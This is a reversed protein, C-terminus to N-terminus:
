RFYAGYMNWIKRILDLKTSIDFQKNNLENLDNIWDDKLDIPILYSSFVFLNIIEILLEGEYFEQHRNNSVGNMSRKNQEDEQQPKKEQLQLLILLNEINNLCKLCVINLQKGNIIISGAGSGNSKGSNALIRYMQYLILISPSISVMAFLLQQSKLLKDIGNIAMAGDVKGKQIQILILRLLSGTILYKIPSKIENEYTSMIIKLDGNKVDNTIQSETVDIHNDQAFQYIMSNLSDFESNLSDKSTISLQSDSSTNRLIDLMDYVPKIVWNKFFGVVPEIGNYNIWYIIEQRNAYVKKTQSPGYFIILAIIIWYRTLFGPSSTIDYSKKDFKVVHEMAQLIINKKKQYAAANLNQSILQDQTSDLQLIVSLAELYDKPNTKILKDINGINIAIEDDIKRLKLKAEKVVLNIPFKIVSKISHLYWKISLIRQKHKHKTRTRDNSLLIFSISPPSQQRISTILGNFALKCVNKIVLLYRSIINDEEKGGSQSSLQYLGNGNNNNNNNDSHFLIRKTKIFIDCGFNYLKIPSTQMFYILKNITSSNNLAQWYVQQNKLILTKYILSNTLSLTTTLIIYREIIELITKTNNNLSENGGISALKMYISKLKNLDIDTYVHNFKFNEVDLLFYLEQFVQLVNDNVEGNFQHGQNEQKEQQSGEISLQNVLFAKTYSNLQDFEHKIDRSVRNNNIIQLIKKSKRPTLGLSILDM